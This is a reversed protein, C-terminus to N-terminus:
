PSYSQQLYGCLYGPISFINKPEYGFLKPSFNAWLDKTRIITHLWQNTMGDISMIPIHMYFYINQVHFQIDLLRAPDVFNLRIGILDLTQDEPGPDYFIRIHWKINSKLLFQDSHWSKPDPWKNPM